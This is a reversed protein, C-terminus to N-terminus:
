EIWSDLVVSDSHKQLFDRADIWDLARDCTVIRAQFIAEFEVFFLADKKPSYLVYVYIPKAIAM